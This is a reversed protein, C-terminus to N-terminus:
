QDGVHHKRLSHLLRQHLVRHTYPTAVSLRDIRVAFQTRNVPWSEFRFGRSAPLSLRPAVCVGPMLPRPSQDGVHAFPPRNGRSRCCHGSLIV